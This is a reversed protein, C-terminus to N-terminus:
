MNFRVTGLGALLDDWKFPGTIATRTYFRICFCLVMWSMLVTSAIVVLGARDTATIVYARHGELKSM